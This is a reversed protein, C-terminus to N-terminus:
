LLWGGLTAIAIIVLWISVSYRHLRQWEPSVEVNCPVDALASKAVSYLLEAHPQQWNFWTHNWVPLAQTLNGALGYTLALLRVPIAELLYLFRQAVTSEPVKKAYQLALWVLIIGAVDAIVYWFLMLFFYEFWRYLLTKIVEETVTEYSLEVEPALRIGLSEQACLFAGQYDGAAVKTQYSEVHRQIDAHMLVFLVLLVEVVLNPLGWAIPELYYSIVFMAVAPMVVVVAYLVGDPIRQFKILKHWLGLWYSFGKSEGDRNPLPLNLLMMWVLAIVLFKM